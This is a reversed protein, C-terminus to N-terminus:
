VSLSPEREIRQPDPLLHGVPPRTLASACNSPHCPLMVVDVDNHAANVSAQPDRSLPPCAASHARQQVEGSHQGDSGYTWGFPKRHDVTTRDPPHDHTIIKTSPTITSRTATLTATLATQKLDM